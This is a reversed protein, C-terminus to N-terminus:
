PWEQFRSNTARRPKSVRGAVRRTRRSLDLVQTTVSPFNMFFVFVTKLAAAEGDERTNPTHPSKQFAGTGPASYLYQFM